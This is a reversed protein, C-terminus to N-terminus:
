RYTKEVSSLGGSYPRWFGLFSFSGRQLLAEVSAAENMEGEGKARDPRYLLSRLGM